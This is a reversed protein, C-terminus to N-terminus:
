KQHSAAKIINKLYHEMTHLRSNRIDEQLLVNLIDYMQNKFISYIVYKRRLCREQKYTAIGVSTKGTLWDLKATTLRVCPLMNKRRLKHKTTM